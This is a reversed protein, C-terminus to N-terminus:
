KLYPEERVKVHMKQVPRIAINEKVVVATVKVLVNIPDMVNDNLLGLCVKGTLPAKMQSADTIVNGQKYQYFTNGALFLQANEWDSIFYYRVNDEGQVKNFYNLGHLALAAMVGYYGGYELSVDAATTIFSSQANNYAQQGASGVGIYYSWSVTNAPLTFDILNKNNNGNIANTSSVKASQDIVSVFSTDRSAVYAEQITSYTTDSVEKWFVTSNFPTNDNEGPLREIKFSCIRGTVASNSFRFGYIGKNPVRIVKKNIGTTKYDMFLSSSSFYEFVQIEKLEKESEFSLIIQDGDDFGYYFIEESLAGVKMNSETIVIPTQGISYTANFLTGATFLFKLSRLGNKMSM